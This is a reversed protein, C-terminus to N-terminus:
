FSIDLCKPLKKVRIIKIYTANADEFKDTMKIGAQRIPQYKLYLKPSIDSVTYILVPIGRYNFYDHIVVYVFYIHADNHKIYYMSYDNNIISCILNVMDDLSELEMKEAQPIEFGTSMNGNLAPEIKENNEIFPINEKIINM